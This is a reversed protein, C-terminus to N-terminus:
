LLKIYDLYSLGRDCIHNIYQEELETPQRKMKKIIDKSVCFIKIQHLTRTIKEKIGQAKPKLGNCKM